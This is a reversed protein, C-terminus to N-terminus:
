PVVVTDRTYEFCSQLDGLYGHKRLRCGRNSPVRKIGHVMGKAFIPVLQYKPGLLTGARCCSLVGAKSALQCLHKLESLLVVSHVLVSRQVYMTILMADPM